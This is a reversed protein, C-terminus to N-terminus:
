KSCFCPCTCISITRMEQWFMRKAERDEEQRKSKRKCTRYRPSSTRWSLQSVRSEGTIAEHSPFKTILSVGYIDGVYRQGLLPCVFACFICFQEVCAQTEEEGVFRIWQVSSAMRVLKVFITVMMIRTCKKFSDTRCTRNLERQPFKLAQKM